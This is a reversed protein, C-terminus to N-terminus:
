RNAGVTSRAQHSHDAVVECGANGCDQQTAEERQRKRTIATINQGDPLPPPSPSNWSGTGSSVAAITRATSAEDGSARGRTSSASFVELADTCM